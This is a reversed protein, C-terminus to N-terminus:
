SHNNVFRTLKDVAALFEEADERQGPDSRYRWTTDWTNIRRYARLVETEHASLRRSSEVELIARLRGHLRCLVELSHTTAQVDKGSVVRIKEELEELTFVEHTVMLRAKLTCEMAYGGMYKAATWRAARQLAAADERRRLAARTLESRGGHLHRRSM